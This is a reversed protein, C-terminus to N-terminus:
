YQVSNFFRLPRPSRFLFYHIRTQQMNSKNRKNTGRMKFSWINSGVKWEFCYLGTMTADCFLYIREVCSAATWEVACDCSACCSRSISYYVMTNMLLSEDLNELRQVLTNQSGKEHMRLHSQLSNQFDTHYMYLYKSIMILNSSSSQSFTWIDTRDGSETKTMRRVFNKKRKKSQFFDVFHMCSCAVVHLICVAHLM